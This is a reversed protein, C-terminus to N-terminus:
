DLIGTMDYEVLVAEPAYAIGCLVNREADYKISAMRKNTKLRKYPTGDWKYILIDDAYWDDLRGNNNYPKGSYLFLVYKETGECSITSTINDDETVIRLRDGKHEVLDKIKPPFYEYVTKLSLSDTNTIEGFGFLGYYMVGWAYHKKDPSCAIETNMYISNQAMWNYQNLSVDQPYMVKSITNGQTDVLRYMMSDIRSMEIYRDISLPISTTNVLCNEKALSIRLSDNVIYVSFIRKHNSDIVRVTDDIVCLVTRGVVEWPGNGQPLGKANKSLDTSICKVTADASNVERFFYWGNCVEINRPSLIDYDGLDIIRKTGLEKVIEFHELPNNSLQKNNCASLFLAVVIVFSVLRM